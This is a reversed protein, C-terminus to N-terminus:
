RVNDSPDTFLPAGARPESSALVVLRSWVELAAAETPFRTSALFNDNPQRGEWAWEGTSTLARGERRIVFADPAGRRRVRDLLVQNDGHVDPAQLEYSMVKLSRLDLAPLPNMPVTITGSDPRLAHAILPAVSPNGERFFLQLDVDETTVEEDTLSTALFIDDTFARFCTVTFDPGEITAFYEWNEIHVGTEELCERKMAQLATEGPEQKGGIGNLRGAQWAPRKKRITLVKKLDLSFAFGLCYNM